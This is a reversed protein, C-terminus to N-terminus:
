RGNWVKQRTWRDSYKKARLCHRVIQLSPRCCSAQKGWGALEGGTTSLPLAEEIPQEQLPLISVLAQRRLKPFVRPQPSSKDSTSEFQDNEKMPHGARERLMTVFVRGEKEDGSHNM